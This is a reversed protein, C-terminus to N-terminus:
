LSGALAKAESELVAYAKQANGFQIKGNSTKATVQTGAERITLAKMCEMQCLLLLLGQKRPEVAIETGDYEFTSYYFFTFASGLTNIMAATPAFSFYLNGNNLEITPLRSVFGPEWPAVSQKVGWSSSKFAWADAPAPYVMVNPQLTLTQVGTNPALKALADLANDIVTDSFTSENTFDLLKASGSLADIVASILTDKSITM